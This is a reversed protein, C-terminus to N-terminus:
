GFLGLQAPPAPPPSAHQSLASRMHRKWRSLATASCGSNTWVRVWMPPWGMLWEVFLPNLSRRESSSTEGLTESQPALRSFALAQGDISPRRKEPDGNDRTYSGFVTRPTKWKEIQHRLSHEGAKAQPEWTGNSGREADMAQPTRWKHAQASLPVGGGQGPAQNPSGKEGDSARPTSWIAAMTPLSVGTSSREVKAFDENGESARPTPWMAAAATLSLNGRAFVQGASGNEGDTANPTPWSLVQNQLGVQAKSGDPRRGTPSTGPMLTRGGNPVDPTM